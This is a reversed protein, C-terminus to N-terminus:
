SLKHCSHNWVPFSKTLPFFQHVYACLHARGGRYCISAWYLNGTLQRPISVPSVTVQSICLRSWQSMGSGWPSNVSQRIVDRMLILCFESVKCIQTKRWYIAPLSIIPVINFITYKLSTEKIWSSSFSVCLFLNKIRKCHTPPLSITSREMVTVIVPSPPSFSM